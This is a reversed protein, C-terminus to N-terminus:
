ILSSTQSANLNASSRRRPPPGATEPSPLQDLLVAREARDPLSGVPLEMEFVPVMEVLRAVLQFASGGTVIKLLADRPTLLTTRIATAQTSVHVLLVAEFPRRAPGAVAARDDVGVELDGEALLRVRDGALLTTLTARELAAPGTVVFAAGRHELLQADLRLAEPATV